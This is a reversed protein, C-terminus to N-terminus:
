EVRGSVSGIREPAFNLDWCEIERDTSVILRTRGAVTMLKLGRVKGDAPMDGLWMGTDSLIYIRNTSDAVAWTGSGRQSSVGSIPEIGNGFMASSIPFTWREKLSSDLGVLSWEQSANMAAAAFVTQGDAGNEVHTYERNGDIVHGDDMSLLAGTRNNAAIVSRGSLALSRVATPGASRNKKTFPDYIQGGHSGGFCVLLQDNKGRSGPIVECALVSYRDEGAAPFSGVPEMSEDFVYVQKGGVTFMAFRQDGNGALMPRVATVAAGEPLELRKRSVPKGEVSFLAVTQWGDMVLLGKSSGNSDPLLAINGPSRLQTSEWVLKPRLKLKSRQASQQQRVKVPVAAVKKQQPMLFGPFYSGVLRQDRDKFYQDLYGRYKARMDDAVNVGKQTATVAGVLRQDWRENIALKGNFGSPKALLDAYQVNLKSDLVVVAPLSELEFKKIEAGGLDVDALFPIKTRNAAPQLDSSLAWSGIASTKIADGSVVVAFRFSNSALTKRISEFKSVLEADADGGDLFLLAIPTGELQRDTLKARKQDLLTFEPATEGLLNTPLPDTPAVFERVPWVGAKPAVKEFAVSAADFSATSFEATLSLGKVNPDTALMPAILSNPLKIQRIVSTSKDIWAVLEGVRSPCGIVYCPKGRFTEDAFRKPEVATRLWPSETQGTLLSVAPPVLLTSNPVITENIPIREGGNLYYTAIKDNYLQQLLQSGRLFLQQNNLNETSIESVFCSLLKGDSRIKADFIDAAMNGNKSWATQWPYEEILPSGNIQGRLTLVGRDSYSNANRYAAIVDQLIKKAPPGTNSAPLLSTNGSLTSEPTAEGDTGFTGTGSEIETPTAEGGDAVAPEKPKTVYGSLMYILFVVWAFAFIGQLIRTSPSGSRRRGM